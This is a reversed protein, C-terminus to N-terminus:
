RARPDCKACGVDANEGLTKGCNDCRPEDGAEGRPEDQGGDPARDRSGDPGGYLADAVERGDVEKEPDGCDEGVERRRRHEEDRDKNKMLDDPM